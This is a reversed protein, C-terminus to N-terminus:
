GGFTNFCIGLPIPLRRESVEDDSSIQKGKQCFSEEEDDTDLDSEGVDYEAESEMDMVIDLMENIDTFVKRTDKGTAM